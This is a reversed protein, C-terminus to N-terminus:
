WQARYLNNYQITYCILLLVLLVLETNWASNYQTNCYRTWKHLSFDRENASFGQMTQMVQMAMSAHMTVNLYRNHSILGKYENRSAAIYSEAFYFLGAGLIHNCLLTQSQINNCWIKYVKNLM